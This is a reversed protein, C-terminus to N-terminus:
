LIIDLVDNIVTDLTEETLGNFSIKLKEIKEEQTADTTVIQLQGEHLISILPLLKLRMDHKKAQTITKYKKGYFEELFQALYTRFKNLSYLKKEMDLVPAEIEKIKNMAPKIGSEKYNILAKHEKRYCLWLTVVAIFEVIELIIRFM